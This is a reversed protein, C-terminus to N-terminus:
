NESMKLLLNKIEQMDKKLVNINSVCEQLTNQENERRIREVKYQELANRDTNLVAKSTDDRIYKLESM